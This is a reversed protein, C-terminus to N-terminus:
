KLNIGFAIIILYQFRQIEGCMLRKHDEHLMHVQRLMLFLLHKMKQMLMSIVYTIATSIVKSEMFLSVFCSASLSYADRKKPIKRAKPEERKSLSDVNGGM